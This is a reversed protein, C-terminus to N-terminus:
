AELEAALAKARAIDRRRTANDGGCSLIVLVRGRQAMYLRYGPAM